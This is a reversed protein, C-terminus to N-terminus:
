ISQEAYSPGPYTSSIESGGGGPLEMYRFSVINDQFGLLLEAKKSLFLEDLHWKYWSFSLNCTLMGSRRNKNSIWKSHRGDIGGKPTYISFPVPIKSRPLPTDLISKESLFSSESSSTQTKANTLYRKFVAKPSTSKDYYKVAVPNSRPPATHETQFKIHDRNLSQPVSLLPAHASKPLIRNLPSSARRIDGYDRTPILQLDSNIDSM